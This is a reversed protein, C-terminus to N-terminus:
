EGEGPHRHALIRRDLRDLLTVLTAIEDDGFEALLGTEVADLGHQIRAVMAEGEVTLSLLNARRDTPDQRRVVLDKGVLIDVLRVLSSGDLGIRAALDKQSLPANARALHLLPAWTADSLGDQSLSADVVARWRRAVGVFLMGLGVRPSHTQNMM